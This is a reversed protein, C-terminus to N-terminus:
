RLPRRLPQCMRLRKRLTTQEGTDLAGSAAPEAARPRRAPAQDAQRSVGAAHSAFTGTAVAAVAGGAALRRRRAAAGGKGRIVCSHSLPKRGDGAWSGSRHQLPPLRGQSGARSGAARATAASAGSARAAGSAAGAAQGTAAATAAFRAAQSLCLMVSLM